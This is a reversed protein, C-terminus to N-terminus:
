RVKVEVSQTATQGNADAITLTYTTTKTPKVDMCRFHSPWVEAVPPDLTVKKANSVDYCIQAAEGRRIEAPSVYFSRIAFESGGLQEVVRRDEERQQEARQQLNRQDYDRRSAYRSYMIYGVYIAVVLLALLSYLYPNKLKSKVVPDPPSTQPQRTLDM